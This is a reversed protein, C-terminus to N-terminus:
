KKKKNPNIYVYGVSYHHINNICYREEYFVFDRLLPSENTGATQYIATNIESTSALANTEKRLWKIDFSQMDILLKSRNLLEFKKGNKEYINRDDDIYLTKSKRLHSVCEAFDKCVKISNIVYKPRSLLHLIESDLPISSVTLKGNELLYYFSNFSTPRMDVIEHDKVTVLTSLKASYDEDYYDLLFLPLDEIKTIGLPIISHVKGDFIKNDERVSYRLKTM